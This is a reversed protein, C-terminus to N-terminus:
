DINSNFTINESELKYINRVLKKAIHTLAAIHSKGESRKKYYFERFMSEHIFVYNAANMLFYRLHGSGHKVMHGTHSETRSQLISPEIGAFAVCADASKFRSLDGFESIIRACSIIGIGKISLIALNLEKIISEIKNELKNIEVEIQSHLILLSELETELIDNSIGISNKALEKLKIFNAPNFEMFSYNNKELFLKLNM